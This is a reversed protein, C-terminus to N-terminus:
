PMRIIGLAPNILKTKMINAIKEEYSGAVLIRIGEDHLFKCTAPYAFIDALQAEIDHNNKNVFSLATLIQKVDDGSLNLGSFGHSLYQTYRKYFAIDKLSSSEIVIQGKDQKRALFEIFMEIVKDNTKDLIQGSTWGNQGAKEKNVSIIVCTFQGGNLFNMLDTLFNKNINPNKLISFDNIKLGIERSHFVINIHNWYKFKIRDAKIKLQEAQYERVIIGCLTYNKDYHNLNPIGSEDIYLKFNRM